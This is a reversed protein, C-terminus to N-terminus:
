ERRSAPHLIADTAAFVKGTCLIPLRLTRAVAYVMLDLMNLLGGRGNGSGYLDNAVAAEDAHSANFASVVIGSRILEALFADIEPDSRNGGLATVCRFEVLVPAPIQGAESLM